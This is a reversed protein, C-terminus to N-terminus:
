GAFVGVRLAVLGDIAPEWRAIGILHDDAAILDLEKEDVGIAGSARTDGTFQLRGNSLQIDDGLRHIVRDDLMRYASEIRTAHFVGNRWNGDAVIEDRILFSRATVQHDRWFETSSDVGIRKRGNSRVVFEDSNIEEIVGFLPRKKPTMALAEGALAGLGVLSAAGMGRVLVEKRTHGATMSDSPM